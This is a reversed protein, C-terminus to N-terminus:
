MIIKKFDIGEFIRVDKEDFNVVYVLFKRFCCKEFLGMLSFVLVEVEIFFVKYIKGGKYVFSGEIVKFDLYCIVEIYFLMKVLQGNVMFFKFILDVNWDRGRGM